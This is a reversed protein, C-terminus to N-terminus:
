SDEACFVVIEGRDNRRLRLSRWLEKEEQGKSHGLGAAVRERHYRKLTKNVSCGKESEPGKNVFSMFLSARASAGYLIMQRDGNPNPEGNAPKYEIMKPKPQDGDASHIRKKHKRGRDEGESRKKVKRPAAGILSMIGNSLTDRKSEREKVRKSSTHKSKKVPSGPSAEGAGDGSYDPSPPFASPRLLRNLGGTLGSHLVPPADTMVEDASREASTDVHLRKRKKDKKESTTPERDRSKRQETKPAPTRYASTPVPGSGYQVLATDDDEFHITRRESKSHGAPTDELMSQEEM